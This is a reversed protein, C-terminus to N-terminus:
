HSWKAKHQQTQARKKKIVRGGGLDVRVSESTGEGGSQRDGRPFVLIAPVGGVRRRQELLEAHAAMAFAPVIVHRHALEVIEAGRHLRPLALFDDKAPEFLDSSCVDSSWDSIRM